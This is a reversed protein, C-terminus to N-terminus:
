PLIMVSLRLRDVIVEDLGMMAVLTSINSFTDATIVAGSEFLMESLIELAVGCENADIMEEVLSMTVPQLQSAVAIVLGRIRGQIEEYWSSNEVM